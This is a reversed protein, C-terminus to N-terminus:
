AVYFSKRFTRLGVFVLSAGRITVMISVFIYITVIDESM